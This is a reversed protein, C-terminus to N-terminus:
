GRSNGSKGIKGWRPMETLDDTDTAYSHILSRPGYKDRRSPISLYGFFEDFGHLLGTL